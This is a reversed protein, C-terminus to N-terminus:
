KSPAPRKKRPALSGHLLEIQACDLTYYTRNGRAEREILGAEYLVRLHHSVTPQSLGLAITLEGVWSEEPEKSAILSLIRLRAADGVVRFADAMREAQLEDLPAQLVPTCSDEIREM